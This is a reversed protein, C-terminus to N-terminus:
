PIPRLSEAVKIAEQLTSDTELRYTVNDVAWILVHGEILRTFELDGNYMRLPYPGEGWYARQGNVQTGCM